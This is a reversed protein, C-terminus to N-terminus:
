QRGSIKVVFAATINKRLGAASGIMPKEAPPCRVDVTGSGM